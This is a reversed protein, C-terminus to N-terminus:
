HVNLKTFAYGQGHTHTERVGFEVGFSGTLEVHKGTVDVLVFDKLQPYLFVNVSQGARVHVREFGFLYKRPTGNTGAGPPTIFGLVVDDADVSGTNTVNISYAVLPESLARLSPYSTFKQKLV